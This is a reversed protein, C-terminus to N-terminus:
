YDDRIQPKTLQDSRFQKIEECETQSIQSSIAKDKIGSEFSKQNLKAWSKSFREFIPVEPASSPHLKREFVKRLITEYVHYRCALSLLKRGLKKGLLVGAGINVGTNNSTRDYSM